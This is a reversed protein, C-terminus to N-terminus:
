SQAESLVLQQFTPSANYFFGFNGVWGMGDRQGHRLSYCFSPNPVKSHQGQMAHTIQTIISQSYLNQKGAAPISEISLLRMEDQGLL